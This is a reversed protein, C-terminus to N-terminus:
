DAPAMEDSWSAPPSDAPSLEEMWGLDPNTYEPGMVDIEHRSAAPAMEGTEAQEGSVASDLDPTMNYEPGMVDIQHRSGGQQAQPETVCYGEGAMAGSAVLLGSALAVAILILTGKM